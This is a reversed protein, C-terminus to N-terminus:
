VRGEARHWGTGVAVGVALLFVVLRIREAPGGFAFRIGPRTADELDGQAHHPPRTPAGLLPESAREYVDHQGLTTVYRYSALERAFGPEGSFYALYDLRRADNGPVDRASGLVILLRPKARELDSVVALKFNRELLTETGAPRYVLPEPQQFQDAYLVWLIWMSPYRLPWEAHAYPVLPWASRMNYSLVAVDEGAARDRVLEALEWFGPYPEIEPGKPDVVKWGGM